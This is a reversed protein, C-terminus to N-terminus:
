DTTFCWSTYALLKPPMQTLLKNPVQQSPRYLTWGHLFVPNGRLLEFFTKVGTCNQSATFVCSEVFFHYILRGFEISRISEGEVSKGEIVCSEMALLASVYRTRQAARWTERWRGSTCVQVKFIFYMKRQSHFVNPRWQHKVLQRRASKNRGNAKTSM